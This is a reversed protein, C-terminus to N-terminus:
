EDLLKGFRVTVNTDGAMGTGAKAQAKIKKILEVEDIDKIKQETDLGKEGAIRVMANRFRPIVNGPQNVELDVIATKGKKTTIFNTLAQKNIELTSYTYTEDKAKSKEDAKYGVLKEDGKKAISLKFKPMINALAPEVYGRITSKVQAKQVNKDH